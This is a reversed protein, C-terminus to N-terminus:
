PLARSGVAQRVQEVAMLYDALAQRYGIQTARYTREADLFDFLSLAGRRYAYESIERSRASMDLYGSRYYQVVRDNRQLAEYADRVDTMVQGTLEASQQEAQTIAVRTKAREGQNRDFIALPIGLGITAAGDGGSRSYGLSLTLDQSANAEALAHQSTAAAVGQKAARLDARERAALKQLDALQATVPRYDFADAVDYEAPLVEHGVLQRLDSLAQIRALQAQEVDTQFQLLQLKVKLYDNESMGGTHFRHDSVEIAQQFSQLNDRALALTSEALQVAIFQSAVQFSLTREADAVQARTVATADRAAGIRHDRKGGRELTYSLGVDGNVSSSWPLVQWDASLGPNPRLGATIEDARAQDVTTRTAALAHNHALALTIAQDLTVTISPAAPAAPTGAGPAQAAAPSAALACAAAALVALAALRPTPVGVAGGAPRPASGGTPDLAKM